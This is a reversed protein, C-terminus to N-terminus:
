KKAANTKAFEEESLSALGFVCLVERKGDKGVAEHAILTEPSGHGSPTNWIIVYPQGDRPSVLPQDIQDGPDFHPKLENWNAPPRKLALEAKTYASWLKNITQVEEVAPPPPTSNCGLLLVFVLFWCSRVVLVELFYNSFHHKRM